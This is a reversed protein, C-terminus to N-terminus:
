SNKSKFRKLFQLDYGYLGYFCKIHIHWLTLILKHLKVCKLNSVIKNNVLLTVGLNSIYIIHKIGRSCVVFMIIELVHHMATDTMISHM